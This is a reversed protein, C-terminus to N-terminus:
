APALGLPFVPPLKCTPLVPWVCVQWPFSYILELCPGLVLSSLSEVLAKDLIFSCIEIAKELGWNVESALLCCKHVAARRKGTKVIAPKIGRMCMFVFVSLGCTICPGRTRITWNIWVLTRFCRPGLCLYASLLTWIWVYIVFHFMVPFLIKREARQRPAQGEQCPDRLKRLAIKLPYLQGMDPMYM